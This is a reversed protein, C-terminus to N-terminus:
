GVPRLWPDITLRDLGIARLEDYTTADLRVLGVTVRADGVGGEGTTVAHITKREDGMLAAAASRAQDLQALSNRTAVVCLNGDHYRALEAQAAALEGGVVGVVLVAVPEVTGTLYTVDIGSFRNRHSEVFESLEPAAGAYGTRWGGAPTRCSPPTPYRPPAPNQRHEAWQHTVELTGARYVGRLRVWGSIRGEDSVYRDSVKDLDVGEATLALPCPPPPLPLARVAPPCFRVPGGEDMEVEGVAEVVDGDRVVLTAPDPTGTPSPAPTATTAGPEPPPAVATHPWLAMSGTITAAVATAAVGVTLFRSARWRPGPGAAWRTRDPEPPPPQVAQWRQGADTLIQDIDENVM